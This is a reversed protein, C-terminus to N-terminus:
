SHPTESEPLGDSPTDPQRRARKGHYLLNEVQKVTMGMHEAIARYTMGHARLERAMERRKKAKREYTARDDDGKRNRQRKREARQDDDILIHLKAQEDPQVDLLEVLREAKLRYRNGHQIQRLIGNTMARIQGAPLTPCFEEALGEIEDRLREAEAGWALACAGVFLFNNRCGVPVGEQWGSMEILRRTDRLFGWAVEQPTWLNPYEKAETRAKQKAQRTQKRRACEERTWRLVEGAFMDFDSPFLSSDEGKPWVTCCREGNRQNTTGVARLCRSGDRATPDAGFAKLKAGIQKQVVNWRPLAQGPIPHLLWKVHLGRGSSNVLSPRPLGIEECYLRLATAQQEPSRAGHETKYTDLDAFCLAISALNALQRNPRFFEGQSLYVNVDDPFSELVAPMESLRYSRQKDDILVSFFGRATVDHYHFAEFTM